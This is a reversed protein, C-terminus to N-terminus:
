GASKKLRVACSEAVLDGVGSATAAPYVCLVASINLQRPSRLQRCLTELSGCNYQGTPINKRKPIIRQAVPKGFFCQPSAAPSEPNAIGNRITQNIRPARGSIRESAPM